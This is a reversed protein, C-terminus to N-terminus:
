ILINYRYKVGSEFDRSTDIVLYGHKKSWANKCVARFENITMDVSAFKRFLVDVDEPSIKFFILINANARITHLPLHIYNQSLYISDCNCSRGRTYYQEATTQRRDTMIDDFVMLNRVKTNLETPDPIDESSNYFEATIDSPNENNVSLAEAVDKISVTRSEIDAGVNLLYVIDSKSLRNKFGEILCQYEPQHLSRAFIFLKNYNLVNEQLLLQMLLTTKGSGSSGVILMRFSYPLSPNHVKTKTDNYFFKLETM